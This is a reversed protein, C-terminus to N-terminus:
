NVYDSVTDPYGLYYQCYCYPMLHLSISSSLNSIITQNDVV